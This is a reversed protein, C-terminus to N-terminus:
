IETSIYKFTIQKRSFYCKISKIKIYSCEHLTTKLSVSYFLFPGSNFKHTQTKKSTQTTPSIARM